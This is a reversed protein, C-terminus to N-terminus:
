RDSQSASKVTPLLVRASESCGYKGSNALEAIRLEVAPRKRLASWDASNPHRGNLWVLAQLIDAPDSSSLMAECRNLADGPIPPGVRRGPTVYDNSPVGGLMNDLLILVLENRQLAYTQYQDRSEVLVFSTNPLDEPADVGAWGLTGGPNGSPLVTRGLYHRDEDFRHVRLEDPRRPDGVLILLNLSLGPPRLALTRVVVADDPEDPVSRRAIDFFEEYEDKRLCGKWCACRILKKWEVSRARVRWVFAGAGALGAVSILILVVTSLKM